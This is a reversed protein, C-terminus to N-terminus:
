NQKKDTFFGCISTIILIIASLLFTQDFAGAIKDDKETKIKSVVSQIESQQGMLGVGSELQVTGDKIKADADMLQGSGFRLQM